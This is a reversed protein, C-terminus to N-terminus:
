HDQIGASARSLLSVLVLYLVRSGEVEKYYKTTWNKDDISYGRGGGVCMHM